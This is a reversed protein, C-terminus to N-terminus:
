RGFPAALPEGVFVAQQPWAVSKWYAEIATAGQAYFLLLAQPHPFKQLHACPESATGHSATAGAEIWALVSMQGYPDDLRGGFSTLHDALAGPLFGVSSLGEVQARGTMYILVRDVGRLTDAQDLHIDLGAQAVKGEPPFLQQRVSRVADSTTVFHVQAPLGGRLGLTGDSAVGRDILAKAGEVDRAALQMSLRMRHEALPRTAASGFYSSRRSVACSHGCLGEDFGMALAGALGNCAVAYPLRWALALAQVRDGYFAEIQAQLAEFEGRTLAGKVPLRVRLIQDEPIQRAKAYHGGVQVSYPDDLNIVLGLDKVGLRGYVRPVRMWKRAPSAPASAAVGPAPSSAAPLVAEQAQGASTVALGSMLCVLALLHGFALSAAGQALSSLVSKRMFTM